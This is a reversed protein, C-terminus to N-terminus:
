KKSKEKHEKILVFITFLTLGVYTGIICYQCGLYAQIVRIIPM